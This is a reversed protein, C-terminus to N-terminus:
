SHGNGPNRHDIDRNSRGIGPKIGSLVQPLGARQERWRPRLPTLRAVQRVADVLYVSGGPWYQAHYPGRAQGRNRALAAFWPRHYGYVVPEHAFDLLRM